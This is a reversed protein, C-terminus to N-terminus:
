SVRKKLDEGERGNGRTPDFGILKIAGASFPKKREREEEMDEEEKERDEKNERSEESGHKEDRERQSKSGESVRKKSNGAGTVRSRGVGGAKSDSLNRKGQTSTRIVSLYKGGTTQGDIMKNLMEEAEKEQIRRKRKEARGRGLKESLHEDGFRRLGGETPADRVIGGGVVYTTGGGGNDSRRPAAQPGSSPLLGTRKSYDPKTNRSSTSKSSQLRPNTSLAFSSTSATFEARGARGRQVAAHVHYECVHSQRLDVWTTCRNGDRQTASCCGLDRSHGILTISDAGLPNLALPLTLPHPANTGARLPRLIRPNLIAIVSGVALNCWKEYAGGSGGRYGKYEEGDEDTERVVCDAEFLLLQLLADGGTGDKKRPPLSCLRLNIYKRPARKKVKKVGKKLDTGKGSKVDKMGDVRAKSKSSEAQTEMDSDDSALNQDNSDLDKTGSVRIESREAVVAITLWDGMVPVDYTAGDRSLRIVSYLLSPALYHRGRIHDQVESHPLIRKSLRIGSNPELDRWVEEGEPDRGFEGPGLKINELITMDYGDRDVHGDPKYVELEDDEEDKRLSSPNTSLVSTAASPLEPRKAFSSSRSVTNHSLTSSSPGRRLAALSSSMKSAIPKRPIDPLNQKLPKPKPHFIPKPPPIPLNILADQLKEKPKTPTTGVLVQAQEKERARQGAAVKALRQAKIAELRAIQADIDATDDDM